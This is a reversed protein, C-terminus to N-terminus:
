IALARNPLDSEVFCRCLSNKGCQVADGPNRSIGGPRKCQCFMFFTFQHPGPACAFHAAGWKYKLVIINDPQEPCRNFPFSALVGKGHTVADIAAENVPNQQALSGDTGGDGLREPQAPYVESVKALPKCLTRQRRHCRSCWWRPVSRDFTQKHCLASM